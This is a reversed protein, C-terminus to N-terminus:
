SVKLHKLQGEMIPISNIVPHESTLDTECACISNSFQAKKERFEAMRESNTSEKFKDDMLTMRRSSFLQTIPEIKPALVWKLQVCDIGISLVEGHILLKKM